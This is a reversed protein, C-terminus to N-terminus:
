IMVSLCEKVLLWATQKLPVSGTEIRRPRSPLVPQIVYKLILEITERVLLHEDDNVDLLTVEFTASIPPRSRSRHRVGFATWLTDQRLGDRPVVEIRGCGPLNFSRRLERHLTEPRLLSVDLLDVAGAPSDPVSDVMLLVGFVAALLGLGLVAIILRRPRRLVTLYRM